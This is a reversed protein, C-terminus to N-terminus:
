FVERAASAWGEHWVYFKNYIASDDNRNYPNENSACGKEYARRGEQYIREHQDVILPKKDAHITPNGYFKVVKNELLKSSNM